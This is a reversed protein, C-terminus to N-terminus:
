SPTPSESNTKTVTPVGLSEDPLISREWTRAAACETPSAIEPALLLLISTRTFLVTMGPVARLSTFLTISSREPLAQPSPNPSQELGSNRRSPEAISSVMLGLLITM